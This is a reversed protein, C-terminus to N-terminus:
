NSHTPLDPMSANRRVAPVATTVTAATAEASAGAPVGATPKRNHQM